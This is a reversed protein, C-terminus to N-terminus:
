IRKELSISNGSTQLIHLKKCITFKKKCLFKIQSHKLCYIHICFFFGRSKSNGFLTSCYATCSPSWQLSEQAEVIELRNYLGKGLCVAARCKVIFHLRKSISIVAFDGPKLFHHGLQRFRLATVFFVHPQQLHTQIQWVHLQRGAGTWIIDKFHHHGTLLGLMIRPQKRSL